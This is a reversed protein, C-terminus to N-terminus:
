FDRKTRYYSFFKMETVSPETKMGAKVNSKSTIKSKEAKVNLKHSM